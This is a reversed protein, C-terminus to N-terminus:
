AEDDKGRRSSDRNLVKAHGAVLEALALDGATTVKFNRWDGMVVAVPKGSLEVLQADDTAASEGRAYAAELWGRRFVQPTQAGWLGSRPVTAAIEGGSGVRKLTDAVPLAPIAAGVEIAKAFVRDIVEPPTLPRACDHVAVFDAGAALSALGNAVSAARTAGGAVIEVNGYVFQLELGHAARFEACSDPSVILTVSEVDPRTAFLELSHRWVPRGALLAFPKKVPGGFRTSDGAAPLLVAFRRM